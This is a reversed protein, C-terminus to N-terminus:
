APLFIGIGGSVSYMRLFHHRVAYCLLILFRVRFGAVCVVFFEVIAFSSSIRSTMSLVTWFGANMHNFSWLSFKLFLGFVLSIFGVLDSSPCPISSRIFVSILAFFFAFWHVFVFYHRWWSTGFFVQYSIELMWLKRSLRNRGKLRALDEQHVNAHAFFNVVVLAFELFPCYHM